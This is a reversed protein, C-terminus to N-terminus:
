TRASEGPGIADGYQRAEGFGGEGGASYPIAPVTEVHQVSCCRADSPKIEAKHRSFPPEVRGRHRLRLREVHEEVKARVLNINLRAGEHDIDACMAVAPSM